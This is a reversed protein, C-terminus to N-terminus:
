IRSYKWHLVGLARAWTKTLFRAPGAFVWTPLLLFFFAEADKVEQVLV